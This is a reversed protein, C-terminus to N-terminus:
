SYTHCSNIDCVQQAARQTTAITAVATDLSQEVFQGVDTDALHLPIDPERRHSQRQGRRQKAAVGFGNQLQHHTGIDM